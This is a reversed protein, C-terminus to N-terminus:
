RSSSDFAVRDPYYQLLTKAPDSVPWRAPVEWVEQGYSCSVKLGFCSMPALAYRWEPGSAGSGQELLLFIEPDTGQVFAFLAGDPVSTEAEGYRAVPKTLLRLESWGKQRFDDTAAFRGRALTSMQNMRRIASDAPKPADPM